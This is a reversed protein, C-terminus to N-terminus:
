PPSFTIGVCTLRSLCLQLSEYRDFYIAPRGGVIVAFIRPVGDFYSDLENLRDGLPLLIENFPLDKGTLLPLRLMDQIKQIHDLDDCAFLIPLHPGGAGSKVWPRCIIFM